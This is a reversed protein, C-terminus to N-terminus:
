NFFNWSVGFRFIRENLPYHPTLFYEKNGMGSNVHSFMVFFRTHKIHFNLYANIVPYGGTEVNNEGNGQTTYVGMLPSYEPAEYKTFYRADAGFDCQLVRAIKFRLFLNTYVNLTPLPLVSNDSSRQYTLVNQWNLIGLKFDQTLQATLVNIGSGHQMPVVNLGTRVGDTNTYTQLFYAYNKIQDVAVRLSTKTKPFNLTGMIRTHFVRDMEVDDWWLHKAHYNSFYFSPAENHIFANVALQLTDGLFPFNLDGTADITFDGADDGAVGVKGIINYHLWKGQLKSLQGGVFISNENYSTKGGDLEPLEFHKLTHQAFAKIGAKAYKNFGELLALAVTNKLEYHRTRDYISDGLLPGIQGYDNLYYDTPTQYAQYIRTYNNFEATHIFSTVPVYETKMWMTDEAAKQEEALLSDAVETSTVAIREAPAGGEVPEDGVIKADDPRGAFTPKGGFAEEDFDDGMRRRAEEKEKLAENEKESEIAFKRAKIEEETMKVKRRFGLSYRHTFFIHQNDNRNWNQELVTPIEDTSFSENFMEPHTIYNDDTIGGSETVKQHLTSFLLHAQYRDGLYSGWFSYKFHSASQNAYYGRGYLYDFKFGVGIRKGANIAFLAHFDDEGNTRNGASNLTVNTIPSYTNTFLHSEVPTVVFNYPDVFIFDGGVGSQDIFLRNMRPAGLNGTTNYEGRLGSTFTTNQYMHSLTDVVAPTRDGFLPDVNWGFVGKPIEKNSGLSDNRMRRQDATTIVGNEDVQNFGQNSDLNNFDVQAKASSIGLALCIMIFFRKM